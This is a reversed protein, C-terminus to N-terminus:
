HEGHSLEELAAFVEKKAEQEIAKVSTAAIAKTALKQPLALLKARMRMVAGSWREKVEDADLLSGKLASEELATKNAQHHTLRAREAELKYQGDSGVIKGIERDTYWKICDGTSYQNSKGSVGGEMMPMGEGSWSSITKPNVEFIDSLEQRNAIM